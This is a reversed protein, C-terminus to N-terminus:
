VTESEYMIGKRVVKENYYTTAKLIDNEYWTANLLIIVNYYVM